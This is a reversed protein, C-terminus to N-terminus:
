FSKFIFMLRWQMINEQMNFMNNSYHIVVVYIENCQSRHFFTLHASRVDGQRHTLEYSEDLYQVCSDFQGTLAYLNSLSARVVSAADAAVHMNPESTEM